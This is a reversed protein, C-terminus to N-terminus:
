HHLKKRVFSILFNHRVKTVLIKNQKWSSCVQPHNAMGPSTLIIKIRSKALEFNKIIFPSFIILTNSLITAKKKGLIWNCTPIFLSPWSRKAFVLHGSNYCPSFYGCLSINVLPTLKLWSM